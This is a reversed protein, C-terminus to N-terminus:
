SGPLTAVFKEAREIWGKLQDDHEVGEAAVLVVGRIAQGTVNFETVHEQKLALEGQEPGIRAILSNKWVGLCMHGNLLFRVGGLAFEKEELRGALSQRLREALPESYPTPQDLPLENKARVLRWGCARVVLLSVATITTQLGFVSSCALYLQWDSRM